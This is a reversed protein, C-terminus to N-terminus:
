TELKNIKWLFVRLVPQKRGMVVFFIEFYLTCYSRIIHNVTFLNVYLHYELIKHNNNNIIHWYILYFSFTYPNLKVGKNSVLYNNYEYFYHLCADTFMMAHFLKIELMFLKYSDRIATSWSTRTLSKNINCWHM